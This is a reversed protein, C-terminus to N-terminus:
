TVSAYGQPTKNVRHWRPSCPWDKTLYSSPPVKVHTHYGSGHRLHITTVNSCCIFHNPSPLSLKITSPMFHRNKTLLGDIINHHCPNPVSCSQSGKDQWPLRCWTGSIYHGLFWERAWHQVLTYWSRHTAHLWHLLLIRCWIVMHSQWVWGFPWGWSTVKHDSTGHSNAVHDCTLQVEDSECSLEGVDESNSWWPGQYMWSLSYREKIGRIEKHTCGRRFGRSASM